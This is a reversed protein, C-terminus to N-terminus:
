KLSIEFNGNYFKIYLSMTENKYGSPPPNFVPTSMIAAYVAENLTINSSQKAFARNVLKGTSDIKFSVTCDGDGLVKTFDIKRGLTNRLSVKYSELEQKEAAAKAAKLAEQAQKEAAEKAAKLAEEQQKAVAITDNKVEPKKVQATNSSASATQPKNVSTKQQQQSTTKATTQHKPKATSASKNVTQTKAATKKITNTTTKILPEKTVTQTKKAEAPKSVPAKAVSSAVTQAPKPLANNWFADVSPINKVPEANEATNLREQEPISNRVFVAVLLSLLICIAFIIVSATDFQKRVPNEPVFNFQKDSTRGSFESASVIKPTGPDPIQSAVEKEPEKVAEECTFTDNGCDCFDPKTEYEAGCETCKYM